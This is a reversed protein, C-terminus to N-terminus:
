KGKPKPKAAAAAAPKAAPSAPAIAAAPGDVWENPHKEDPLELCDTKAADRKTSGNAYFSTIQAMAGKERPPYVCSGVLGESPCDDGSKKLEGGGSPCDKPLETPTDNYYAECVGASKKFCIALLRAGTMSAPKRADPGSGAPKTTAPTTGASTLSAAGKPDSSASPADKEKKPSGSGLALAAFVITVAAPVVHDRLM